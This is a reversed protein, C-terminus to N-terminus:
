AEFVRKYQQAIEVAIGVVRIADKGLAVFLPEKGWGDGEYFLEPVKGGSSAVLQQIKWPMSSGDIKMIEVPEVTRDISGFGLNSASCYDKVVGIITDDCKFDIGANISPDYKRVEIILRAMHDSAGYKPSGSARPLGNVVTIRGDIAAVDDRTRAGPLAYAVNARVEPVLAAFAMCSELYAVAEALNGLILLRQELISM